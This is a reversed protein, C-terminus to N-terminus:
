YNIFQDCSDHNLLKKFVFFKCHGLIPQDNHNLFEQDISCHTCDVCHPVKATPRNVEAFTSKLKKAM